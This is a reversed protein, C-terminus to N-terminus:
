NNKGNTQEGKIEEVLIGHITSNIGKYRSKTVEFVDGVIREKKAKLDNFVGLAKVKIM